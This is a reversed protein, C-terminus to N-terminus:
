FQGFRFSLRGFPGSLDTNSVGRLDSGQVFRYGGGLGLRFYTTVNLELRGGPEAVFVASQDLDGDFQPDFPLDVIQAIGGGLVVGAGYHVLHAPAGIYELLLGGYGLQIQASQGRFDTDPLTVLGRGAGGIVFQRNLIWGGQGGAVLAAEGNVSTVAVTPAGYGGSSRVRDSLTEEADTSDVQGTAPITLWFALLFCVASALLTTRLSPSFM